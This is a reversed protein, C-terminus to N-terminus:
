AAAQAAAYYSGNKRALERLSKPPLFREGYRQALSDCIEVFRATGITDIHSIPGGTWPAFGWGLVAGVDADAPETVVNEELCRAAELAQIVLFRTKLEEVDPQEAALPVLEALGPWLHKGGEAPYDYFGKRAKKGLRGKAVMAAVLDQYPPARFAEGLDAKTQTAVRQVLDLAVEDVLALPAMPMGTARGANEILAPKIGEALMRMGEGTYTGFVRSTYFGRSDNVVIPTKRIAQVFDLALALAKDGTERGMIVEVLPMKEVPSFFHLGIFNVPKSWAESLGTIPLTSTNSAFVADAGLVAEVRKTVDAKIARDEFVAEIVLDCGALAGFDTTALIRGAIAAAKAADSKEEWAQTHARGKDALAQDRDILVVELGAKAAVHAIGAGMMGAGLVGIKRFSHRPVGAPRKALKNARQLNIFNTRIMNRSAAGLLLKTLYRVEIKLATDIPMTYGDYAADIIAQANPYNGFTKKRLLTVAGTWQAAEGPRGPNPPLPRWDKRDWPKVLDEPKAALARAKARALLDAPPVIEDVLGLEKAKQPSLARGELLLPLAKVMGLMRLSRTLGGGGPLLGVKSEPLGIQCKPDDTAVRFHCALCIEFGGGLATGNIAAVFPKAATEIRRFLSQGQMLGDFIRKAHQDRTEDPARETLGELYPLDAGAVFAPKASTIVVGKVAADALAREVAQAFAAISEANMVNMTRGAMDWTITAIGNADVEYRIDSM